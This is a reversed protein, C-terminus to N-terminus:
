VPTIPFTGDGQEKIQVILRNAYVTLVNIGTWQTFSNMMLAVWTAKRYKRGCVAEKFSASAADM